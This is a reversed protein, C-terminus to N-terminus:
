PRGGGAPTGSCNRPAYRRGWIGAPLLFCAFAALAVFRPDHKLISVAIGQMVQVAIAALAADLAPRPRGQRVLVVLITSSTALVIRSVGLTIQSATSAAALVPIATAIGLLDLCVLIGFVVPHDRLFAGAWCALRAVAEAPDEREARPSSGPLRALVRADLRDLRELLSL